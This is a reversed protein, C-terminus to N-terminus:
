ALSPNGNEGFLDRWKKITNIVTEITNIVTECVSQIKEFVSKAKKFFKSM